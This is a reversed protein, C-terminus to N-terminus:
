PLTEGNTMREILSELYVNNLNEEGYISEMMASYGNIDM